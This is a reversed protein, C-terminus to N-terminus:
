YKNPTTCDIAPYDRYAQKQEEPTRSAPKKFSDAEVDSYIGHEYANILKLVARDIGRKEAMAGYYKNKCNSSDAEGITIMAEGDKNTVRIILRCSTADQYLSTIQETYFGEIAMIKEIANHSIIWNGHCDWVDNDRDLKYKLGLEKIDM